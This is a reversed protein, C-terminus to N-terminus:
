GGIDSSYSSDNLVLDDKRIVISAKNDLAQDDIIIEVTQCDYLEFITTALCSCALTQNIGDLEGLLHSVTIIVRNGSVVLSVLELGEPFPSELDQREPGCLYQIILEEKTFEAGERIEPVIVKDFNEESSLPNHYYFNVPTKIEDGKKSCGIMCLLVLTLVIVSIRKTM